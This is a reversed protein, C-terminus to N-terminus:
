PMNLELQGVGLASASKAFVANPLPLANGSDSDKRLAGLTTLSGNATHRFYVPDARTVDQEVYVGIIGRRCVHVDYRAPWVNLGTLPQSADELKPWVTIGSPAPADNATVATQTLNGDVELITFAQGAVDSTLRVDNGSAAATIPVPLANVRAALGDRIEAITASGDSTYEIVWTQGLSPIFIAFSYLTTNVAAIGTIDTVQAVANYARRIAGDGNATDQVVVIGAELQQESVTTAVTTAAGGTAAGTVTLTGPRRAVLTLVNSSRTVSVIANAIANAKIAALLAQATTASDTDGTVTLAINLPNGGNYPVGTIDLTHTQSASYTITVTRTEKRKNYRTVIRHGDGVLMGRLLAPMNQNVTLQM